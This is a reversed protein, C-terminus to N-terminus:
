HMQKLAESNIHINVPEVERLNDSDSMVAVWNNDFDPYYSDFNADYISLKQIKADIQNVQEEVTASTGITAAESSADDVNNLRPKPRM